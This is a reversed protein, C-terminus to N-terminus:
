WVLLTLISGDCTAITPNFLSVIFFNDAPNAFCELNLIKSFLEFILDLAAVSLIVFQAGVNLYDIYQLLYATEWSARMTWLLM